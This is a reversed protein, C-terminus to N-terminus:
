AYESVTQPNRVDLIDCVELNKFCEKRRRGKEDESLLSPHFSFSAAVPLDVTRSTQAIPIINRSLDNPEGDQRIETVTNDVNKVKNYRLNNSISKQV